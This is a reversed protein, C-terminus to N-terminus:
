ISEDLPEGIHKRESANKLKIDEIPHKGAGQPVLQEQRWFPDPKLQHRNSQRVLQHSELIDQMHRVIRLLELWDGSKVFYADATACLLRDRQADTSTLMVVPIGLLRHCGKIKSLVQHGQFKPLNFNLIILDPLAHEPDLLRNIAIDGDIAVEMDVPNGIYDIAERILMVDGPNDEALFFRVRDSSHGTADVSDTM